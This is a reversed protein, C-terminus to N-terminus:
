GVWWNSEGDIPVHDGLFKPKSGLVIEGWAKVRALHERFMMRDRRRPQYWWANVWRADIWLKRALYVARYLHYEQTSVVAREVEFLEKARYMTDYTDFGAFDQFIFANDVWQKNMYNRMARVENYQQTGNDWSILITPVIWQKYTDISGMVRWRTVSSLRGDRYVAAWPTIVTQFNKGEPLDAVRDVIYDWGVSLVRFNAWLVIAVVTVGVGIGWKVVLRFFRIM